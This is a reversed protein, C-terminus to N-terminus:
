AEIRFSLDSFSTLSVLRVVCRRTRRRRAGDDDIPALAIQVLGAQVLDAQAL